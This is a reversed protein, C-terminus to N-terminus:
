CQTEDFDAFSEDSNFLDPHAARLGRGLDNKELQLDDDSGVTDRIEEEILDRLKKRARCIKVNLTEISCNMDKALQKRAVKKFPGIGLDKLLLEGDDPNQRGLKEVANMLTQKAWEADEELDVPMEEEAAPIPGSEDVPVTRSDGDRLNSRVYRKIVGQVYCRFRGVSPRAKKLVEKEYLYSFFDDALEEARGKITSCADCRDSSRTATVSSLIKGHM